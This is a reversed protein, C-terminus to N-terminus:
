FSHPMPPILQVIHSFGNRFRQKFIIFKIIIDYKISEITPVIKVNYEILIESLTLYVLIVVPIFSYKNERPLFQFDIVENIISNNKMIKTDNVIRM